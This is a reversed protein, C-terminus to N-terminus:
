PSPPTGGTPVEAAEAAPQPAAGEAPPSRGHSAEATAASRRMRREVIRLAVVVVLMIAALWLMHQLWAMLTAWLVTLSLDHMLWAKARAPVLDPALRALFAAYGWAATLCLQITLMILAYPILGNTSFVLASEFVPGTSTAPLVDPLKGGAVMAHLGVSLPIKHVVQLTGNIIMNRILVPVLAVLSLLLMTLVTLPADIRRLQAMARRHQYWVSAIWFFSFFYVLLPAGWVELLSQGPQAEPRLEVASLTLAIAFVGDALMVLRDFHRQHVHHERVPQTHAHPDAYPEM